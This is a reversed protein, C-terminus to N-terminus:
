QLLLNIICIARSYGCHQLIELDWNGQPLTYPPILGPYYNNLLTIVCQVGKRMHTDIEVIGLVNGHHTWQFPKILSNISITKLGMNHRGLYVRAASDRFIKFLFMLHKHAFTCIISM